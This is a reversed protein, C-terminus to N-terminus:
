GLFYENDPSLNYLTINEHRPALVEDSIETPPTLYQERL